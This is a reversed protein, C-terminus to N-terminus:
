RRPRLASKGHDVGDQPVALPDSLVDALATLLQETSAPDRVAIRIWTSGLGPFTDGRRVAIGRRRLAERVHGPNAAVPRVQATDVLVFPTAPQGAVPLGLRRLGQLLVRRHADITPLAAAAEAVARGSACAAIAALAPSSVSWPPQQAALRAILERDGVVYGARLGAIGWTKTLSRV